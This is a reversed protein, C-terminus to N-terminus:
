FSTLLIQDIRTPNTLDALRYRRGTGDERYKYFDELYKESHPLYLRNFTYDKSKTYFFISDHNNPFSKFALGKANTRRWIIHTNFGDPGFAQDLMVRVYADAHWDCHYYFSGTEKVRAM